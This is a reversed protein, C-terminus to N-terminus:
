IFWCWSITTANKNLVIM